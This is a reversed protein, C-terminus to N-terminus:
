TITVNFHAQEYKDKYFQLLKEEINEQTEEESDIEYPGFKAFKHTNFMDIKIWGASSEEILAGGAKLQAVMQNKQPTNSSKLYITQGDLRMTVTMPGYQPNEQYAKLERM